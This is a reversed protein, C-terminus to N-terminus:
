KKYYPNEYGEAGLIFGMGEAWDPIKTMCQLLVDLTFM